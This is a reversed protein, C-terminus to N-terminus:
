RSDCDGTTRVDATRASALISVKSAASISSPTMWCSPVSSRVAATSASLRARPARAEDVQRALLQLLEDARRAARHAVHELAAAHLHPSDSCNEPSSSRGPACRAEAGRGSPERSALARLSRITAPRWVTLARRSTMSSQRGRLLRDRDAGKPARAERSCRRDRHPLGNHAGPRLLSM